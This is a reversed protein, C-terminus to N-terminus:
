KKVRRLVRFEAAEVVYGERKQTKLSFRTGDPLTGFTADGIAAMIRNKASDELAKAQKAAAKATELEEAWTAAEAPLFVTAGSDRPYLRRLAEATASSGDADPPRREQVRRWFEDVKEM